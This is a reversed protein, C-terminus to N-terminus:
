ICLTYCCLLRRDFEAALSAFRHAQFWLLPRLLTQLLGARPVGAAGLFEEGIARRLEAVTVYEETVESEMRM